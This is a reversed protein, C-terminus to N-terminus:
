PQLLVKMLPENGAYLRDFWAPGEELPAVATILPELDVDGRAIMELCDPYEGASACSGFLSLERTVVAQLPMNANPALNGVLGVRGGKKVISIATAPTAASGVADFAVDVGAGETWRMVQGIVDDTAAHLTRSAGLQRALRLRDDSLDVAVIDCAGAAKAAQIVLLGIMGAGIVVVSDGCKAEARRVAHVAVSLPEVMAGQAFGVNDPLACVTRGPVRVFEAFAGDCRYEECSVGLVRRHDCLNVKGVRCNECAGCYVTSDFTVRQGIRWDGAEEKVEVIEGAAEHGMIVPPRRRGTGGDYGHVDSGCIGCARVRVLVENAAPTPVPVDRVELRRYEPLVLAKM